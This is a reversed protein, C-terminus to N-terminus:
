EIIVQGVVVIDNRLRAGGHPAYAPLREQTRPNYMGVGLECAGPSAADGIVLRHPDRVLDGPHWLSTPYSGDLPPQDSQAVLDGGEDVLHV